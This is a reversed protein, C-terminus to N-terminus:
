YRQVEAIVPRKKQYAENKEGGWTRKKKTKKDKSKPVIKEPKTKREGKKRYNKTGSQTDERRGKITKGNYRTAM